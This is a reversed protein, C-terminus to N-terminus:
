TDLLLLSSYITAQEGDRVSHTQCMSFVGSFCLETLLAHSGEENVTAILFSCISGKGTSFLTARTALGSVIMRYVAM